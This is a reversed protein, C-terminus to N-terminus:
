SNLASLLHNVRSKVSSSMFRGCIVDDYIYFKLQNEYRKKQLAFQFTMFGLKTPLQTARTCCFLLPPPTIHLQLRYVDHKVDAFDQNFLAYFVTKLSYKDTSDQYFTRLICQNGGTWWRIHCLTDSDAQCM